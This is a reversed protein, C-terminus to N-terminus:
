NILKTVEAKLMDQDRMDKTKYTYRMPSILNNIYEPTNGEKYLGKVDEAWRVVGSGGELKCFPSVNLNHSNCSRQNKTM